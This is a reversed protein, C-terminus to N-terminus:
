GRVLSPVIGYIREISVVSVAFLEDLTNMHLAELDLVEFARASIHIDVAHHQRGRGGSTRM